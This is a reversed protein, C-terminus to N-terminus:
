PARFRDAFIGEWTTEYAGLDFLGGAVAGPPPTLAPGTWAVGRPNGNIDPYLPAHFGDCYDIAPSGTALRYDGASENVFAPDTNSYHLATTFPVDARPRNAIVCDGTVTVPQSGVNRILAVAPNHKLISTYIALRATRDAFASIEFLAGNGNGALTSHWIEVDSDSGIDVTINGINDAILSGEIRVQPGPPSAISLNAAYLAPGFNDATNGTVFTRIVDLRSSSGMSFAGGNGNTSNDRVVSCPPYRTVGSIATVPACTKGSASRRVMLDGGSIIRFAGGSGTSSNGFVYADEVVLRSGNGTVTAAGGGSASNSVLLAASAPDGFGLVATARLTVEAGNSLHLGGGNSTASNSVFGGTPIFLFVEGGNYLFVNKCGSVSLGGGNIAQNQLVLTTGMRLLTNNGVSHTCSAHIAGGDGGAVNNFMQSANDVTVMPGFSGSSDASTRIRMGAGNGGTGTRTNNRVEVNRLNVQLKGPRGSVRVGGGNTGSAGRIVLNELNVTR